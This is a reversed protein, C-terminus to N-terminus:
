YKKSIKLQRCLNSTVYGELYLFSIMDVEKENLNQTSIEDIDKTEKLGTQLVDPLKLLIVKSTNKM